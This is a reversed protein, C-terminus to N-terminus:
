YAKGTFVALGFKTAKKMNELVDQENFKHFKKTQQLLLGPLWKARLKPSNPVAQQESIFLM